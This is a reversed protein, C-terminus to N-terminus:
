ASLGLRHAGRARSDATQKLCGERVLRALLVLTYWAEALRRRHSGPPLRSFRSQVEREERLKADVVDAHVRDARRVQTLVASIHHVPGHRALRMFLDYDLAHRLGVDIGGVARYANARWFATPQPVTVYVYTMVGISLTPQRRQELLRNRDDIEVYDGYALVVTPDKAFARAVRAFARPAYADNANLWAFIDGTALAFGKAIAEGPSRDPESILHDIAGRYRTLVEATVDSSRGDVIILELNPYRQELISDIARSLTRGRNLSPVVVSIRPMSPADVAPRETGPGSTSYPTEGFSARGSVSGDYSPAAVSQVPASLFRNVTGDRLHVRRLAGTGAFAETWLPHASAPNRSDIVDRNMSVDSHLRLAPVKGRVELRSYDCRCM